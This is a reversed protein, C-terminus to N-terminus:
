LNKGKQSFRDTLSTGIQQIRANLARLSLIPKASEDGAVRIYHQGISLYGRLAKGAQPVLAHLKIAGILLGIILALTILAFLFVPLALLVTAVGALNELSTSGLNGKIALWTIVAAALLSILIVPFLIMWFRNSRHAKDITERLNPEESM